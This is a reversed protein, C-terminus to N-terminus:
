TIRDLVGAGSATAVPCAAPVMAVMEIVAPRFSGELAVGLTAAEVFEALGVAGLRSVFDAYQPLGLRYRVIVDPDDIELALSTEAVDVDSLGATRAANLLLDIEGIGSQRAKIEDYWAPPTWGFMTAIRDFSTKAAARRNSFTSALVAGGPRTVRALERLGDPVPAIHNLVFAAVVADFVGTRLPLSTIDGVVCPPRRASDFQLMTREFDVAVVRASAAGLAASAAGTGAGADLVLSGCLEFPSRAILHRAMPAYAVSVDGAWRTAAGRYATTAPDSM